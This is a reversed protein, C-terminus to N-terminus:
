IKTIKNDSVKILLVRCTTKQNNLYSLIIKKESISVIKYNLGDWKLISDNVLTWSRKGSILDDDNNFLVFGKDIFRNYKDYTGDENFHFNVGHSGCSNQYQWYKGKTAILITESKNKKNCSLLIFFLFIMCFKNMSLNM